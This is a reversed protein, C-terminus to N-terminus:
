QETAHKVFNLESLYYYRKLTEGSREKVRYLCFNRSKKISEV